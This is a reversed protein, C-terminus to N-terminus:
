PADYQHFNDTIKTANENSRRKLTFGGTGKVGAQGELVGHIPM